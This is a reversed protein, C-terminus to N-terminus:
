LTVGCIQMVFAPLQKFAQDYFRFGLYNNAEGNARLLLNYSGNGTGADKTDRQETFPNILLVQGRGAEQM